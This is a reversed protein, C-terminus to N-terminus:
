GLREPDLNMGGKFENFMGIHEKGPDFLGSIEEGPDVGVKVLGHTPNWRPEVQHVLKVWVVAPGKKPPVLNISSGSFFVSEKTFSTEPETLERNFGPAFSLSLLPRGQHTVKGTWNEDEQRLVIEDAIFKPYGMRRGGWMAVRDTVPMTLVHWFEKGRYRCKLLSAGEQYRTMPWPFMKIYDAVFITIQPLEPMEFAEPLRRRYAKEDTPEILARIGKFHRFMGNKPKRMSMNLEPYGYRKYIFFHIERLHIYMLLCLSAVM